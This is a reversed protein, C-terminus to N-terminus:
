RVLANNLHTEQSDQNANVDSVEQRIQVYHTEVVDVLRVM